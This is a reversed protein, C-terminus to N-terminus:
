GEYLKSNAAFSRWPHLEFHPFDWGDPFTGDFNPDGLWRVPIKMEKALGYGAGTEPNQCGIIKGMKKFAEIDDWNVGNPTAAPVVDVAISPSWNHASQGFHAKSNGRKFALEQAAKGRQSDLVSIPLRDRAANMLKQLLVHAQSLRKASDPDFSPNIGNGLKTNDLVIKSKPMTAQLEAWMADLTMPGAIGDLGGKYLGRAALERQIKLTTTM